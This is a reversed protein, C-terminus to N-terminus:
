GLTSAVILGAGLMLLTAFTGFSSGGTQEGADAHTSEPVSGGGGRVTSRSHHGSRSRSRRQIAQSREVSKGVLAGRPENLLHGLYYIVVDDEFQAHRQLLDTNVIKGKVKIQARMKEHDLFIDDAIAKPLLPLVYKEEEDFHILWDQTTWNDSPNLHMEAAKKAGLLMMLKQMVVCKCAM